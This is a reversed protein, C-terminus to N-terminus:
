DYQNVLQRDARSEKTSIPSNGSEMGQISKNVRGLVMNEFWGHM